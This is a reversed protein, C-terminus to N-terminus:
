RNITENPRPNELLRPTGRYSKLIGRITLGGITETKHSEAPTKILFDRIAAPVEAERDKPVLEGKKDWKSWDPRNSGDKDASKWRYRYLFADVLHDGLSLADKDRDWPSRNNLGPQV